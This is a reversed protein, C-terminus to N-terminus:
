RCTSAPLTDAMQRLQHMAARVVARHEFARVSALRDVPLTSGIYSPSWTWHYFFPMGPLIVRGVSLVEAATMQYRKSLTDPYTGHLGSSGNGGDLTNMGLVPCLGVAQADALQQTRFMTPTGDRRPGNYQSWSYDTWQWVRGQLQSPKARIITRCDPWRAKVARGISDLRPLPPREGGWDEPALIDDGTVVAVVTGDRCYPALDPWRSLELATLSVSLRSSVDRMQRRGISVVLRAGAARARQLQTALLPTSGNITGGTYPFGARGFSDVPANWPGIPIGRVVAAGVFRVAVKTSKGGIRITITATGSANVPATYVGGTTITGVSASYTITPLSVQLALLVGLM